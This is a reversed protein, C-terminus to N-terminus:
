LVAGELSRGQDGRSRRRAKSEYMRSDSLALLAELTSADDPYTAMGISCGVVVANSFIDFPAELLTNIKRELAAFAGASVAENVIVAFEDGGIRAVTDEERFAKSRFLM